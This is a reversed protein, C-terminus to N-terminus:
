DSESSATGDYKIGKENSENWEELSTLEGCDCCNISPEQLFKRGSPNTLGGQWRFEMDASGCKACIMHVKNHAM